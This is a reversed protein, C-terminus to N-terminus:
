RTIGVVMDGTGLSTAKLKSNTLHVRRVMFLTQKSVKLLLDKSFIALLITIVNLGVM